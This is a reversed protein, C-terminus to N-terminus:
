LKLNDQLGSPNWVVTHSMKKQSRSLKVKANEKYKILPTSM